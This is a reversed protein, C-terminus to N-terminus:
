KGEIPIDTHAEGNAQKVPPPSVKEEVQLVSQTSSSLHPEVTPITKISVSEQFSSVQTASKINPQLLTTASAPVTTVEDTVVPPSQEKSLSRSKERREKPPAYSEDKQLSKQSKKNTASADVSSIPAGM